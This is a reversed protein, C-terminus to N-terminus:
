RTMSEVAALPQLREILGEWTPMETPSDEDRNTFLTKGAQIAAWATTNNKRLAPTYYIAVADCEQLEKALADDGLFGLVRLRDGFIARMDRISAEISEEWPNGEHIACSMEVTYDSHEADLHRKLAEYHHLLRKHAMGFVLVRYVGRTPNGEITSPAGIEDAYFVRLGAPVAYPRDHLLLAGRSPLLSTWDEGIESAKISILPNDFSEGDSLPLCPVGLRRALQESFKTVGCALPNTHYVLVADFM